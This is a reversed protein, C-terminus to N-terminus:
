KLSNAFTIGFWAITFLVLGPGDVVCKERQMPLFYMMSAFVLIASGFTIGLKYRSGRGVAYAFLLWGIIFLIGWIMNPKEKKKKAMMMMMVAGVITAIPIWVMPDIKTGVISYGVLVWSMIFTIPGVFNSLVSDGMGLQQSSNKIVVGAIVGLAGLASLFFKRQDLQISM